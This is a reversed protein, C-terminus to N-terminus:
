GRQAVCKQDLWYQVVHGLHYNSFITVDFYNNPTCLNIINGFDIVLWLDM